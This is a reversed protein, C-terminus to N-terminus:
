ASRWPCGPAFWLALAAYIADALIADRGVRGGTFHAHWDADDCGTRQAIFSGATTNQKDGLAKAMDGAPCPIGTSTTVALVNLGRDLLMVVALDIYLGGGIHVIGNEVGLGYSADPTAAIAAKARNTAGVRIEDFDFPQEPVGSATKSASYTLDWGGRQIAVLLAAIKKKSTTGIAITTNM